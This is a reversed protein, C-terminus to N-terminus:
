LLATQYSLYIRSCEAGIKLCLAYEFGRLALYLSLSQGSEITGNLAFAHVSYLPYIGKEYDHSMALAHISLSGSVSYHNLINQAAIYAASFQQKM